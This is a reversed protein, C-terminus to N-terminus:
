KRPPQFTITRKCTPCNYQYFDGDRYDFVYKAEEYAIEFKCLCETCTLIKLQKAPIKGERIIRM